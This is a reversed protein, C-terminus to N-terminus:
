EDGELVELAERLVQIYHQKAKPSMTRVNEPTTVVDRLFARLTNIADAEQHQKEDPRPAPADENPRDCDDPLPPQKREQAISRAEACTMGQAALEVRDDLNRLEYALWFTPRGVKEPYAKAVMRYQSLTKMNVGIDKAFLGLKNDGYSKEVGLALDGLRWQIQDAEEVLRRGEAVYEGWTADVIEGEAPALAVTM